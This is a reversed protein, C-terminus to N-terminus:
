SLTTVRGTWIDEHKDEIEKIALLLQAHVFMQPYNGSYEGRDENIHEGLLYIGKSPNLVNWLLQRAEDYRGLRTYIRSLWVNALAFPHTAEGMFDKRYRKVFGDKLLDREIMALTNLFITDKVDLFGYIPLTLLNADVESSESHRVLYGSKICNSIIWEKLKNKSNGSVKKGIERGLKELRDLAVWMMVKSHTYHRPKGRDEWMGADRMKWNKSIWEHIYELDNWKEKIFEKDKTIQYYRYVADVFFGEVDLQVQSAAANGVRVPKSSAYGSLWMLSEEPPPDGGDITYLPHIFPKASFNLSGLLFNLVRRAEIIYGYAMLAESVMSSDRVWAFRYDWNRTSGELEPLSTTPAAISAGTPFFISGLLASISTSKILDIENKPRPVKSRWFNLTNRISRNVTRKIMKKSFPGYASDSSYILYLTLGPAQILNTNPILALCERTLPNMFRIGDKEIEVAPKYLGYNFLPKISVKLPIDTKVQRILAREGIPMLDIVEAKGGKCLFTTSLVTGVVYKVEVNCEEEPSILFEGGESDLLKTFVSPSDYRPLPFWIVSGDNLLASTLGNSLFGLPKM